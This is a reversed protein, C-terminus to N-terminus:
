AHPAPPTPAPPPSTLRPPPPRTPPIARPVQSQGQRVPELHHIALPLARGAVAVVELHRAGRGGPQGPIAIAARAARRTGNHTSFKRGIRPRTGEGGHDLLGPLAEGATVQELHPRAM